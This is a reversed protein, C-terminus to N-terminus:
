FTIFVDRKYKNISVYAIEGPAMAKVLKRYTHIHTHTHTPTHTHTHIKTIYDNRGRRAYIFSFFSLIVNLLKSMKGDIPSLM